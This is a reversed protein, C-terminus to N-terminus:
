DDHLRVSGVFLDARDAVFDFRQTELGVWDGARAPGGDADGTVIAGDIEADKFGHGADDFANGYGLGVFEDAEVYFCFGGDDADGSGRSVDEDTSRVEGHDGAGAGHFGFFLAEGDGFLELGGTDSEEAAAGVFRAGRRVAELSKAEGAEFNEFFNAFEIAKADDGFGDVVFREVEDFL